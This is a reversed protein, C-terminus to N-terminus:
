KRDRVPRIAFGNARSAASVVTQHSAISSEEFGKYYAWLQLTNHLSSTWYWGKDPDQTGDDYKKGTFPLFIWNGEYGPVKSTVKAGYRSNHMWHEWTCKETNGLEMWEEYTATRWGAGWNQTAADDGPLLIFQYDTNGYKPDSCYKTLLYTLEGNKMGEKALAYHEYDYPVGAEKPQLEGWAILFGGDGDNKSGVNQDAWLVSLGLDVYRHEDVPEGGGVDEGIDEGADEGGDIVKNKDCAVMLATAFAMVIFIKKM